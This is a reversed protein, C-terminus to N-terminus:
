GIATSTGPEEDMADDAMGGLAAQRAAELFQDVAGQLEEPGVGRKRLWAELPQLKPDALLEAIRPVAPEAGEAHARRFDISYNRMSTQLDQGLGAVLFYVLAALQHRAAEARDAPQGSRDLYGALNNHSIARARPDPLQERLALAHRQIEIASRLDGEQGFLGALSSLTRASRAPDNRFIELCAELEGKAEGFRGLNRLVNARNMRTVGIDEASRQLARMVELSADIRPLSQEWDKRAFHMQTAINLAGILMRALLEPEPAEPTPQGARHRQWWEEVRELRSEIEPLAEDARGDIM